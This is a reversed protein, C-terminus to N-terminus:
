TLNGQRQKTRQKGVLNATKRTCSILNTLFRSPNLKLERSRKIELRGQDQTIEKKRLLERQRMRNRKERSKKKFDTRFTRFWILASHYIILPSGLKMMLIKIDRGSLWILFRVEAVRLLLERFLLIQVKKLIREVEYMDEPLESDFDNMNEYM